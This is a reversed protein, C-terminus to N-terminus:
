VHVIGQRPDDVDILELGHEVTNKRLLHVFERGGEYTDGNRGPATSLIHDVVSYTLHPSHVKRGARELGAFAAGSTCEHVLHRDIHLLFVGDEVERIVHQDWIKAFLTTNETM